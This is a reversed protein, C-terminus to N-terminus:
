ANGDICSASLRTGHVEVDAMKTEDGGNGFMLTQRAGAVHEMEGLRGETVLKPVDFPPQAGPQEM